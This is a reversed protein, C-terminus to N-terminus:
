LVGSRILLSCQRICVNQYRLEDICINPQVNLITNCCTLHPSRVWCYPLISSSIRVKIKVSISVRVRVRLMFGLVLRLGKVTWLDPRCTWLRCKVEPGVNFISRMIYPFIVKCNSNCWDPVIQWVTHHIYVIYICKFCM